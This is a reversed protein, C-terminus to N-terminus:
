QKQSHIEMGFFRKKQPKVVMSQGFKVPLSLAKAGKLVTYEGTLLVKGYSYLKLPETIM